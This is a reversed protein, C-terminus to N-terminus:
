IKNALGFFDKIFPAIEKVIPPKKDSKFGYTNEITVWDDTNLDDKIDNNIDKMAYFAIWCAKRGFKEQQAIFKKM